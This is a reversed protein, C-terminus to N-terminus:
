IQFEFVPPFVPCVFPFSSAPSTNVMSIHPSYPSLLVNGVLPVLEAARSIKILNLPEQPLRPVESKYQDTFQIKIHPIM